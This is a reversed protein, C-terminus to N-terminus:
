GPWSSAKHNIGFAREGTFPNLRSEREEVEGQVYWIGVRRRSRARNHTQVSATKSLHSAVIGEIIAAGEAHRTRAEGGSSLAGVDLAQTHRGLHGGDILRLWGGRDRSRAGAARMEQGPETGSGPGGGDGRLVLLAVAHVVPSERTQGTSARVPDRLSSRSSAERLVRISRVLPRVRLLTARHVSQRLLHKCRRHNVNAAFKNVLVRVRFQHRRVKEKRSLLLAQLLLQDADSGRGLLELTQVQTPFVFAHM